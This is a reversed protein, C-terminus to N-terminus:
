QDGGQQQQQSQEAQQANLDQMARYASWVMGALAAGSKGIMEAQKERPHKDNFSELGMAIASGVVMGAQIGPTMTEAFTALQMFPNSNLVPVISTPIETNGPNYAGVAQTQPQQHQQQVPPAQQVPVNQQSKRMNEYVPAMLERFASIKKSVTVEHLGYQAAIEKVSKEYPPLTLLYMDRADDGVKVGGRPKKVKKVTEEPM